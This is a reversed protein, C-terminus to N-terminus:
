MRMLMQHEIGVVRQNDIGHQLRPPLARHLPHSSAKKGQRAASPKSKKKEQASLDSLLSKVQRHTVKKQKLLLFYGFFFRGRNREFARHFIAIQPSFAVRSESVDFREFM